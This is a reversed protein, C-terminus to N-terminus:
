VVDVSAEPMSAMEEVCDACIVIRDSISVDAVMGVRGPLRHALPVQAVVEEASDVHRDRHARAPSRRPAQDRLERDEVDPVLSWRGLLRNEGQPCLHHLHYEHSPAGGYLM